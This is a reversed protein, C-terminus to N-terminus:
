KSPDKPPQSPPSISDDVGPLNIDIGEKKALGKLFEYAWVSLAGALAFYGMSAPLSTIGAEPVRWIAGVALGVAIPHLPLTKRGWWFFWLPKKTKYADKTFIVNKVVQGIIMFIALASIFPWHPIVYKVISDIVTEVTLVERTSASM